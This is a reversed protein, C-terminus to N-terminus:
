EGLAVGERRPDAGGTLSGDAGIRIAHLGSELLRVNIEHGLAQLAEALAEADSGEELDTAGNRNVVHGM